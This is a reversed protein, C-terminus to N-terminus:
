ARKSLLELKKTWALHYLPCNGDLYSRKNPHSCYAKEPLAEINGEHFLCDRLNCSVVMPVSAKQVEKYQRDM